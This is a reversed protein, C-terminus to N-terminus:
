STKVLPNRILRANALRQLTAFLLIPKYNLGLSPDEVSVVASSQPRPFDCARYKGM